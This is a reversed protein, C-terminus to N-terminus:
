VYVTCTCTNKVQILRSCYLGTQRSIDEVLHQVCETSRCQVRSLIEKRAGGMMLLAPELGRASNFMLQLSLFVDIACEGTFVYLIIICQVHMIIGLATYRECM